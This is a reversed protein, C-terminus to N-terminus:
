VKKASKNHSLVLCLKCNCVSGNLVWFIDIYPTLPPNLLNRSLKQKCLPTYNNTYLNSEWVLTLAKFNIQETQCETILPPPPTLTPPPPLKNTCNYIQLFQFIM